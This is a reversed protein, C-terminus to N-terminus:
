LPRRSWDTRALGKPLVHGLRKAVLDGYGIQAPYGLLGAAVQTDFVPAVIAADIGAALSLVELDQRAAHLVKVRSPQDLFALLPQLTDLAIVDILVCYRSTAAQILCLKPYYTSERVFETDLAVFESTALERVANELEQPTRAHVIEVAGAAANDPISTM